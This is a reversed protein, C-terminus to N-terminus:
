PAASPEPAPPGCDWLVGLDLAVAEFPAARVGKDDGGWAGILLWHAERLAYVELTQALPDVLWLHRVGARAYFPVKLVRDRRQTSPSVVECVWDPTSTHQATLPLSPVADRRWGALDPVVPDFAPDVGLNLEPEALIWWGGPGGVGLDYPGFVLSALATAARSHAPAPRPSAILEGGLIEGVLHAPLADVDARTPRTPPAPLPQAFM